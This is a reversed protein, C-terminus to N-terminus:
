VVSRITSLPFFWLIYDNYFVQAKELEQTKKENEDATWDQNLKAGFDSVMKNRQFTLKELKINIKVIQALSLECSRCVVPIAPDFSFYESLVKRFSVGSVTQDVTKQSKGHVQSCCTGCFIAM